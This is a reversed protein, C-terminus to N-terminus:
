STGPEMANFEFLNLSNYIPEFNSVSKIPLIDLGNKKKEFIEEVIHLSEKIMPPLESQLVKCNTFLAPNINIEILWVKMDSDVMFDFGLLEFVGVKGSLKHRVAKFCTLMIIKMSPTFWNFVWDDILCKNEKEHINVYENFQDFSLVTEEKKEAYLHHKKQVYQNTLHVHLDLTKTTYPVCTQRIYGRHYFVVYPDTSAILMYTRVDFKHGSILLPNIIYRQIIRKTPVSHTTMKRESRPDLQKLDNILFIGKGQNKGCPKCIWIEGPKYVNKFTKYEEPKDIHYTEMFIDSLSWCISKKKMLIEYERLTQLLGNKKTLHSINEIHNVIQKGPLFTSYNINKQCEVWKFFFNDPNKTREMGLALLAAEIHPVGNNGGIYFQRKSRRRISTVKEPNNIKSRVTRNINLESGPCIQKNVFKKKM